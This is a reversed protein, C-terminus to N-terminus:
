FDTYSQRVYVGGLIGGANNGGGLNSTTITMWYNDKFDTPQDANSDYFNVNNRVRFFKRKFWHTHGFSLQTPNGGGSLGPTLNMTKDYMVRINNGKLTSLFNGPSDYIDAIIPNPLTLIQRQQWITIRVIKELNQSTNANTGTRILWKVTLLKTKVRNGIRNDKNVGTPIDPNLKQFFATNDAWNVPLETVAYKVESMRNITRKIFRRLRKAGFRRRRRIRTFRGRSRFRRKAM